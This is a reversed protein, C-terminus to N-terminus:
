AGEPNDVDYGHLRAHEEAIARLQALVRPDRRHRRKFVGPRAYPEPVQEYVKLGYGLHGLRDIIDALLLDTHSWRGHGARPREAIERLVDEDLDDRVATKYLGEGPLADLLVDLRRFTLRSAGGHPRFLDRLDVGLAALDGEIQRCYRDLQQALDAL